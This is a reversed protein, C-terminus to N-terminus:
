EIIKLKVKPEDTVAQKIKDVIPLITEYNNNMINLVIFGISYTELNQQHQLNKDSTILYDLDEQQMGNLLEGNELEPAPICGQKAALCVWIM